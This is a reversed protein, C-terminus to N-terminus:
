KKVGIKQCKDYSRKLWRLSDELIKVTELVNAIYEKQTM